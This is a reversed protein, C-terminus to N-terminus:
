KFGLTTKLKGLLGPTSLRQALFVVLLGLGVEVFLIWNGAWGWVWTLLKLIWGGFALFNGIFLVGTIIIVFLVDRGRTKVNNKRKSAQLILWFGLYSIVFITIISYSLIPLIKSLFWSQRYLSGLALVARWGEEPGPFQTRQWKDWAVLYVRDLGYPLPSGLVAKYINSFSEQYKLYFRSDPLLETGAIAPIAINRVRYEGYEKYLESWNVLFSHVASEVNKVLKERRESEDSIDRSNFLPLVVYWRVGEKALQSNDPVKAIFPECIEALYGMNYEIKRVPEQRLYELYQKNDQMMRLVLNRIGSEILASDNYGFAYMFFTRVLLNNNWVVMSDIIYLPDLTTSIVIMDYTRDPDGIHPQYIDGYTAIIRLPNQRPDIIGEREIAHESIIVDKGEKMKHLKHDLILLCTLHFFLPFFALLWLV